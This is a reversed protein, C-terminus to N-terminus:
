DAPTSLDPRHVFLTTTGAEIASQIATMKDAAKDRGGMHKAMAEVLDPSPGAMDAYSRRPVVLMMDDEGGTVSRFMWYPPGQGM